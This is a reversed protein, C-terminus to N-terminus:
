IIRLDDPTDTQRLPHAQVFAPLESCSNYVRWIKPWHAAIDMGYRDIAAYVQPWLRIDAISVRDGLCFDLNRQHKTLIAEIVDFGQSIFWIAWTRTEDRSTFGATHQVQALCSPNQFPHIDCGILNVIEWAKYRDDAETPLLVDGGPLESLMQLIVATQTIVKGTPDIVVPLRGQPNIALFAPGRHEQAAPGLNIVRREYQAGITELAIRVTTPGGARWYDYLTM